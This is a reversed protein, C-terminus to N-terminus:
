FSIIAIEVIAEEVSILVLGNSLLITNYVRLFNVRWYGGQVVQRGRLGFINGGVSRSSKGPGSQHHQM